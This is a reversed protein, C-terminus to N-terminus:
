KYEKSVRQAIAIVCVYVEFAGANWLLHACEGMTSGTTLVDDILLIRKGSIAHIDKVGYAGIVNEYRNRGKLSSQKKINKLKCLSSRDVPINLLKGLDNAILETQNYGRQRFREKSIPVPVISDILENYPQLENAMLGALGGSYFTKGQFKFKWIVHKIKDRYEFLSFIGSVRKEHPGIRCGRSMWGLVKYEELCETCFCKKNEGLLDGCIMCKPPYLLDLMWGAATKLDLFISRM